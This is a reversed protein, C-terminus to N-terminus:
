VIKIKYKNMWVNIQLLYAMTQPGKMLQGYWPTECEEDMLKKAADPDVMNWILAQKDALITHLIEKVLKTYVPDYTKPYPSKKRWLVEDPIVGKMALRLLGKERDAYHKMSWPVAYMYEAIGADCFPARIVLGSNISMRDNRDILTQMFWYQNLYTLQKIRKDISSNDCLLDCQNISSNYHDMIFEAGRINHARNIFSLRYKTNQAWPFGELPKKDADAFWPYGGFIEDACEGSLAAPVRKSIRSCFAMLSADVDGMGPLDRATTAADLLEVLETPGLVTWHHTSNIYKRMIEIYANDREPQFVGGVFNIDNDEYDVSFTELVKGRKELEKASIASIISSDLGGSLFSGTHHDIAAHRKISDLVLWRVHETTEGFSETHPRDKLMWYKQKIFNKDTYEAWCGPELECINKFVGSGPIRGPGILMIQAIGEEDLEAEIHPHALITKIESAFILGGNKMTYFLPKVGMKDRALFLTKRKKSWIAFSFVGHLIDLADTGWVIYALLAISADTKDLVEYGYNKLRDCIESSNYLEGDFIIRYTDEGWQKYHIEDCQIMDSGCCLLMCHEDNYYKQDGSCRHHMTQFMLDKIQESHAISVSGAIRSM